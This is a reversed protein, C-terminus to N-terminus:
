LRDQWRRVKADPSRGHEVFLLHGGPKLVRHMEALGRSVNPITCLTWTTLVTDITHDELPITEASAKVLEIPFAKLKATETVMSLLKASPDLGIVRTARESYYPLNLGSGIGIELIRGAAASVVRRRYAALTENRMAMHVLYPLIRDQYFSM